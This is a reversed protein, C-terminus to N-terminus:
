YRDLLLQVIESNDAGSINGCAFHLANRGWRDGINPDAYYVHIPCISVM